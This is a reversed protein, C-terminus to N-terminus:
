KLFEKNELVIRRMSLEMFLKISIGKRNAIKKISEYLPIPLDRTVTTALNGTICTYESHDLTCGKNNGM